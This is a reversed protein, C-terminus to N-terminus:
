WSDPIGLCEEFGAMVNLTHVVQCAGCKGEKDAMVQVTLLSRPDDPTLRIRYAAFPRNSVLSPHWDGDQIRRVYFSRGYAEEYLLDIDAWDDLTPVVAMAQGAYVADGDEVEFGGEVELEPPLPAEPANTQFVPPELILGARYLPGLAAWALTAAANPVSVDDACVLPNNDEIEILGGLTGQGYRLIRRRGYQEFALIGAPSSEDSLRVEPHASLLELLRPDTPRGATVM